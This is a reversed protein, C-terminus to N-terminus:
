ENLQGKQKHLTQPFSPHKCLDQVWPTARRPPCKPLPYFGVWELTFRYFYCAHRAHPASAKELAMTGPAGEGVCCKTNKCSVTVTGWPVIQSPNRPGIHSTHDSCPWSVTAAAGFHVLPGAHAAGKFVGGGWAESCVSLSRRNRAQPCPAAGFCLANSQIGKASYSMVIPVCGFRQTLSKSALSTKGMVSAAKEAIPKKCHFKIPPPFKARSETPAM